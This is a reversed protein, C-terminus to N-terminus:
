SGGTLGTGQDVEPRKEITACSSDQIRITCKGPGLELAAAARRTAIITLARSTKCRGDAESLRQATVQQSRAHSSKQYESMAQEYRRGRRLQASTFGDRFPAAKQAERGGPANNGQLRASDYCAM